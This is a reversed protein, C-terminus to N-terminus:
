ARAGAAARRGLLRLFGEQDPGIQSVYVEDFGAEVYPRLGEVLDEVRAPRPSRRPRWRRPSWRRDARLPAPQHAGAHARRARGPAALAPAGHRAGRRPDQAWCVKVGVHTPGRAAARQPVAARARRRAAVNMYGDGIRAALATAKPGFGSVLVPSRSSPCRTCGPPTSPTTSGRPAARGRRDLAPAHSSPRRSCRWASRPAPGPTASSTSTSRRAPASASGSAGEFLCQTTAAAQALVAPHIRVTPCTVATTCRCGSPARPSRASCAGCSRAVPGPRRELPPLPRQDM